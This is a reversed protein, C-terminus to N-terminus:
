LGRPATSCIESCWFSQKDWTWEPVRGRTITYSLLFETIFYFALGPTHSVYHNLTSEAYICHGSNVHGSSLSQSRIFKYDWHQLAPVPPETPSAPRQGLELSVALGQRLPILCFTNSWSLHCRRQGGCACVCGWVACVVCVVLITDPMYLGGCFMCCVSYTSHWACVVGCLVYLVCWLCRTLCQHSSYSFFPSFAITSSLCTSKWRPHNFFIRTILHLYKLLLFM